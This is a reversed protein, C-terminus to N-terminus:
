RVAKPAAPSADEQIIRVTRIYQKNIAVFAEVQLSDNISVETMNLFPRDDCLVDSLRKKSDPVFMRGVYSAGETEIRVTAWRARIAQQGFVITKTPPQTLTAM